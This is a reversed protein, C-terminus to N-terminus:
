LSRRARRLSAIAAIAIPLWSVLPVLLFASAPKAWPPGFAVDGYVILSGLALILSLILPSRKLALSAVLLAVFPSLVWIAFLTMLLLSNNRHGVRLMLVLSCVAGAVAIIAAVRQVSM